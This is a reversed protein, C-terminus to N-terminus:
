KYIENIEGPRDIELGQVYDIGLERVKELVEISEVCEAVTKINSLHAIDNISKVVTMDTSTKLIENILRGDIKIIDVPLDKLYMFSSMGMGFNDIAINCGIIKLKKVLNTVELFLTMACSESIEFCLVSAPINYKEIEGTVYEYFNGLITLSLAVILILLVKNRINIRIKKPKM